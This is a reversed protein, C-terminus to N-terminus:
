KSNPYECYYHSGNVQQEGEELPNDCITCQPANMYACKLTADDINDYIDVPCDTQLDNLLYSQNNLKEVQYRIPM